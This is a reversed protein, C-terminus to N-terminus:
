STAGPHLGLPLTSALATLHQGHLPRLELRHAIALGQLHRSAVDLHRHDVASVTVLASLDTMRYGAVLEAETAVADTEALTDGVTAGGAGTFGLRNRDGADLRAKASAARARRTAHEPTVPRTHVALTRSTGAPPSDQLLPTLWDATLAVRPWGTVAYCRHLTDDTRCFDWGARASVPTWRDPDAGNWEVGLEAESAVRIEDSPDDGIDITPDLLQRLAVGLEAASLPRALLDAALLATAADRAARTVTNEGTDTMDGRAGSGGTRSRRSSSTPQDAEEIALTIALLHRHRTAQGACGEVFQRYDEQVAADARTVRDGLRTDPLHRTPTDPRDHTLWQVSHVAPDACITTLSTGWRALETDQEAPDLVGFRGLGIIELVITRRRDRGHSIVGLGHLGRVSGAVELSAQGPRRADVTTLRLPRPGIGLRLNLARGSRVDATASANLPRTWTNTGRARSMQLGVFTPAWALLPRGAVPLASLACGIATLPVVVALPVAALLLLVSTGVTGALGALSVWGLGLWVTGGPAPLTYRLAQEAAAEPPRGHRSM